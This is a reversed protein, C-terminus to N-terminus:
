LYDYIHIDYIYMNKLKYTNSIGIYIYIYKISFEHIENCITKM